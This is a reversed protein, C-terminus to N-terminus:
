DIENMCNYHSFNFLFSCFVPRLVCNNSIANGRIVLFKPSVCYLPYANCRQDLISLAHSAVSFGSIIFCVSHAFYYTRLNWNHELYINEPCNREMGFISLHRFQTGHLFSFINSNRGMYFSFFTRIADQEIITIYSLARGEYPSQAGRAYTYAMPTPFIGLEWEIYPSQFKSYNQAGM